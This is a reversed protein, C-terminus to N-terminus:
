VLVPVLVLVQVVEVVLGPHVVAVALAMIVVLLLM